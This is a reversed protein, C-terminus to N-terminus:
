GADEDDTWDDEPPPQDDLLYAMQSTLEKATKAVDKPECTELTIALRRCIAVHVADRPKLDITALTREVAAPTLEDPPATPPHKDATHRDLNAQTAYDRGCGEVPCALRSRGGRKKQRGAPTKSSSKSGSAATRAQAPRRNSM